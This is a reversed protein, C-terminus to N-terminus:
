GPTASASVTIEDLHRLPRIHKMVISKAEKSVTVRVTNTSDIAFKTLTVGESKATALAAKHADTSKLSFDKPDDRETFLVHAAASAVNSAASRTDREALTPQIGDYVAIAVVALVVAAVLIKLVKM